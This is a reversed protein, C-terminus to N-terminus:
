LCESLVESTGRRSNCVRHATKLNESDHSGGKSRPILHDLSPAFDSNPHADRDIPLECLHCTWGDREYLDHRGTPSIWDGSGSQPWYGFEDKFKRRSAVSPSVGNLEKFSASYERCKEAKASKCESCRCGAAFRSVDGHPISGPSRKKRPQISVIGRCENCEAEGQPRSYGKKTMSKGCGRCTLGSRSVSPKGKDKCRTSCYIKRSTRTEFEVSCVRCSVILM